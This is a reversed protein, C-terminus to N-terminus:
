PSLFFFLLPLVLFGRADRKWKERWFEFSFSFFFSFFFSVMTEDLPSPFNEANNIWELCTERPRSAKRPHM